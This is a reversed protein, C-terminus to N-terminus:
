EDPYDGSDHQEQTGRIIEELIRNFRRCDLAIRCFPKKKEIQGSHQEVTQINGPKGPFWNFFSLLLNRRITEYLFYAPINM